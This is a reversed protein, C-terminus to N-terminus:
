QAHVHWGRMNLSRPFLIQGERFARVPGPSISVHPARPIVEAPFFFCLIKSCHACWVQIPGPSISIHGRRGSFELSNRTRVQTHTHTHTHTLSLSLSLSLSLLSIMQTGQLWGSVRFGSDQVRFRFGLSAGDPVCKHKYIYIFPFFGAPSM